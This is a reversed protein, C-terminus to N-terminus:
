AFKNIASARRALLPQGTKDERQRDAADLEGVVSRLLIRITSVLIGSATDTPPHMCTWLPSGSPLSFQTYPRRILLVEFCSAVRYGPTVLLFWSLPLSHHHDTTTAELPWSRALSRVFAM